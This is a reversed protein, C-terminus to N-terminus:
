HYLWGVVELGLYFLLVSAGAIISICVWFVNKRDLFYLAATFSMLGLMMSIDGFNISIEDGQARVMGLIVRQYLAFAFALLAGLMVGYWIFEKHSKTRLLFLLIPIAFVFRLSYDLDRVKFGHLANITIVSLAFMFYSWMLLKDDKNEVFKSAKSGLLLFIVSCLFIMLISYNFGKPIGVAGIFTYAILFWVFISLTNKKFCSIESYM